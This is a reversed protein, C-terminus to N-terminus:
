SPRSGEKAEENWETARARTRLAADLRDGDDAPVALIDGTFRVAMTAFAADVVGTASWAAMDAARDGSAPLLPAGPAKVLVLRDAGLEAALWLALSDSTVDWSEAIAAHGLTMTAPFWLAAGKAAAATLEAPTRAPKLRPELDLMAHAMQEMALLAMRHAAADSLGWQPQVARVQDALAGGGPVVMLGPEAALRALLRRPAAGRTLSGGIKVIITM